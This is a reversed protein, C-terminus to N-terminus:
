RIFIFNKKMPLKGKKTFQVVLNFFYIDFHFNYVLWYPGLCCMRFLFNPYRPKLQKILVKYREKKNFRMSKQRGGLRDFIYYFSNWLHFIFVVHKQASSQRREEPHQDQIYVVYGGAQGEPCHPVRRGEVHMESEYCREILIFFLSKDLPDNDWNRPWWKKYM